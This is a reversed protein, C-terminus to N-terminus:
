SMSALGAQEALERLLGTLTEPQELPLFHTGDLVVLRAHPIREAARAMAHRSTLIDRRGAVLTTPCTVFSLDMPEHDAMAVALTFYWRFDHTRFERLTPVLRAAPVEPSMVGTHTLLWATAANAPVAAAVADLAPGAVRLGRAVSLAAAHRVRTLRRLPGFMAGFTGGPVGAVALLGAVRDPHREAFAFAFAVNVGMSWCVLLVRDLGRADLLALLDAAHDEVTIRSPDAPRQSGGSGRYYWTHAAFGSDASVLAPWAEPPSGLGNAVVVPVGTGGNTWGRLRTGDASPYDFTPM